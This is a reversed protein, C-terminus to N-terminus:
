EIDCCVPDATPLSSALRILTSRVTERLRGLPLASADDYILIKVADVRLQEGDSLQPLGALLEHSPRGTAAHAIDAFRMHDILDATWPRGDSVADLVLSHISLALLMELLPDASAPHMSWNGYRRHRRAREGPMRDVASLIRGSWAICM